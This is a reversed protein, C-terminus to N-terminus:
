RGKGPEPWILRALSEPYGDATLLARIADKLLPDNSELDEDPLTRLAPSLVSLSILACRLDDLALPHGPQTFFKQRSSILDTCRRCIDAMFDRVGYEWCITCARRQAGSEQAKRWIGPSTMAVGGPFGTGLYPPRRAPFEGLAPPKVPSKPGIGWRIREWKEDSPSPDGRWQHLLFGVILAGAHPDLAERRWDRRDPSAWPWVNTLGRSARLFKVVRGCTDKLADDRRHDLRDM